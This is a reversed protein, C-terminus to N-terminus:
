AFAPIRIPGALRPLRNRGVSKVKIFGFGELYSIDRHVAEYPRGLKKALRYINGDWDKLAFILRVREPSFTSAFTEPTFIVTRVARKPKIKGSIVAKIYRNEEEMKKKMDSVIEIKVM